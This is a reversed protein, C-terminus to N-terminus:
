NKPAFLHFERIAPGEVAETIHLRIHRATIPKFKLELESGIKAGRAFTTWRDGLRSQLEFKRVRDWKESILAHDFIRPKGLDVELWVQHLDSNTAWCTRPNDDVARDGMWSPKGQLVNSVKIPRMFTLSAHPPLLSPNDIVKKFEKLAKIYEAPIRGSRDPSVNLLLNAGRERCNKYLGYLSHTSRCYDGPIWHWTSGITDCVEMPLYYKQGKVTKVPNHGAKPPLTREGNLLDTPWANMPVTVADRFGQNMIVICQPNLRKILQYVQRRQAPSLKSPIDIWQEYIGPYRTHLETLHHKILKLYKEGVAAKWKVGGENHGDLVCYYLGPKIGARKCQKMFEAVVDTKDTGQAVDYDYDKSDWLCYGPVHKATLIAYKMGAERAVRIWQAVDLNSPAYTSAPKDGPDIDRGTFTSMGYHIFMGYKLGEWEKLKATRAHAPEVAKNEAAVQQFIGLGLLIGLFTKHKIM